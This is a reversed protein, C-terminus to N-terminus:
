ALRTKQAVAYMILKIANQCGIIFVHHHRSLVSDCHTTSNVQPLIRDSQRLSQPRSPPHDRARSLSNPASCCRSDAPTRGASQGAAVSSRGSSSRTAPSPPRRWSVPRRTATCCSSYDSTPRRRPSNWCRSTVTSTSVVGRACCDSSRSSTKVSWQM